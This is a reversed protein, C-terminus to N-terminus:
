SRKAPVYDVRRYLFVAALDNLGTAIGQENNEIADIPRHATGHPHLLLYRDVVTVLWEVSGDSKANPDVNAIGDSIPSIQVTIGHIDSRPELGFARRTADTDRTGYAIM